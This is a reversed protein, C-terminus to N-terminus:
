VGGGIEGITLNTSSQIQEMVIADQVSKLHWPFVGKRLNREAGNAVASSYMKKTIFQFMKEVKPKRKFKLINIIYCHM